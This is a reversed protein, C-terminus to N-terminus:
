DRGFLRRFFGGITKKQPEAQRVEQVPRSRRSEVPKGMPIDDLEGDGLPADKPVNQMALLMAVVAAGRLTWRGARSAVSFAWFYLFLALLSFFVMLSTFRQIIYTVSEIALPHAAFILASTAAIFWVSSHTVKGARASRRLLVTLLGYILMSNATHVVINVARFWRPQFGDLLYQLYFSGYAVPRMVYNVAFDPDSGLRGPRTVFEDFDKLHQFEGSLKFLPNDVMYTYDDFVLPFDATWAYLSACLGALCVLVLGHIRWSGGAARNASMSAEEDAVKQSPIVELGAETTVVENKDAAHEVAATTVSANQLCNQRHRKPM